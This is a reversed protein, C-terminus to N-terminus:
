SLVSDDPAGLRQSVDAAGQRLALAIAGGWTTDFVGAPGIATIALVMAGTHDFVPAAMANVGPVVEGVSRSLGHARVEALQADFTKWIPLPPAAPMGAVAPDPNAKQRKREAELHQRAVAPAQFAAFLRGSATNALSFVTGHRMNVHVAAPSEELRVITAGRTGWVALAVTHGIRQALAAIVPTAVQVPNAQQLSILGLQLALPGLFYLGTQPDQEILGIRAYSVLYPHAKAPAMGAARALDKLAMPRAHHALATLVQGGVEISQIGRQTRDIKDSM